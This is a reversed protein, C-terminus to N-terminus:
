AGKNKSFIGAIGKIFRQWWNLHRAEDGVRQTRKAKAGELFISCALCERLHKKQESTLQQGREFDRQENFGLHKSM